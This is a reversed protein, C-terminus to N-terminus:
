SHEQMIIPKFREIARKSAKALVLPEPKGRCEWRGRMIAEQEDDVVIIFKIALTCNIANISASGLNKVKADGILKGIHGRALGSFEDFFRDTLGLEAKRERYIEVVEYLDKAEGLIRM